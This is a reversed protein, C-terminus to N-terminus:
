AVKLVEWEFSIYAVSCCASYDILKGDALDTIIRAALKERNSALYSGDKATQSTDNFLDNIMYTIKDEVYKGYSAIADNMMGLLDTVKATSGDPMTAESGEKIFTGSDTEILDDENLDFRDLKEKNEDSLKSFTTKFGEEDFLSIKSFLDELDPDAIFFNAVQQNLSDGEGGLTVNGNVVLEGESLQVSIPKSEGSSDSFGPYSSDLSEFLETMRDLLSHNFTNNAGPIWLSSGELAHLALERFGGAEALNLMATNCNQGLAEYDFGGNNINESFNKMQEWRSALESSNGTVTGLLKGSPYDFSGLEYSQESILVDDQFMTQTFKSNGTPTASEPGGRLIRQSGDEATFFMYTHQPHIFEPLTINGFDVNRTYIEIKAKSM